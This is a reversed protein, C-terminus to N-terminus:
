SRRYEQNDSIDDSRMGRGTPAIPATEHLRMQRRSRVNAQASRISM